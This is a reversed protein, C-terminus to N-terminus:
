IKTPINVLFMLQLSTTIHKQLVQASSLNCKGNGSALLKKGIQNKKELLIVEIRDKLKEKLCISAMIGAPGAGIVVVKTM